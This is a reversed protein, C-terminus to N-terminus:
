QFEDLCLQTNALQQTWFGHLKGNKFSANKSRLDKIKSKATYQLSEIALIRSEADLNRLVSSPIFHARLRGDGRADSVKYDGTMRFLKKFQIKDFVLFGNEYAKEGVPILQDEVVLLVGDDALVSRIASNPGFLGIWHRPDIEHFVNCMIIMDISHEPISEILKQEDDFYRNQDNGYVQTIVQECEEKDESPLDFAYYDLWEGVEGEETVTLDFITSLLRGKGAGFDLVRIKQNDSKLQHISQIIQNTQPDDNGTNLTAPELLCEISFKTTAMQSPLSLFNSLREVEESDGILGKLVREPVNGSFKISGHEVYWIHKQDYHALLHISHTAIWIQGNRVASMLKDVVEILANPHLHNEPEDMFIILDSLKAEQSFLAVCLQLLVKQGDSLRSMGLRFGFITADGNEDRGLDTNLFSKIYSCLREYDGVIESQRQASVTSAQHTANFWLNQLHQIKALTSNSSQSVGVNELNSASNRLSDINYTNCDVLMLNKPVFDVCQYEEALESTEIFPWELNEKHVQLQTLINERDSELRNLKNKHRNNVDTPLANRTAEISRDLDVLRTNLTRIENNSHKVISLRPKSTLTAKIKSLIRSKGSGNKGAILVLNETRPMIIKGLGADSDAPIEVKKIIM